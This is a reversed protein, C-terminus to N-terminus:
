ISDAKLLLSYVSTHLGHPGVLCKRLMELGKERGCCQHCALNGVPDVSSDKGEPGEIIRGGGEERGLAQMCRLPMGKM